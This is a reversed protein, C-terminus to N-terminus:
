RRSCQAKNTNVSATRNNWRQSLFPVLVLCGLFGENELRSFEVPMFVKLRLGWRHQDSSTWCKRGSATGSGRFILPLGTPPRVGGDTVVVNDVQRTRTKPNSGARTSKKTKIFFSIGAYDLHKFGGTRAPRGVFSRGETHCPNPFRGLM